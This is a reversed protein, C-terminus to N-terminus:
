HKLSRHGPQHLIVRRIRSNHQPLRQRVHNQRQICNRGLSHRNARAQARQLRGVQTVKILAGAQSAFRQSARGTSRPVPVEPEVISGDNDLVAACKETNSLSEIVNTPGDSPESFTEEESASVLLWGEEDVEPSGPKPLTAEQSTETVSGFILNTLRQFM